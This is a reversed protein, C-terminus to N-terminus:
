AKVHIKGGVYHRYKERTDIDVLISQDGTSIVLTEARHAHVVTKAGRGLPAELLDPFLDRSFLVPHGRRGRFSPVVILKRSTYFRDIMENVMNTKLYPHDVLHVLIGDTRKPDVSRIAAQLSSLQGKQYDRNVIVNVSLHGLKSKLEDARHGLVVLVEGVRSKRLSSVIRELFTKGEIPLLAKPFGMRRSEGASLVIAVIM